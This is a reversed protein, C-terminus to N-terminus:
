AAHYRTGAYVHGNLIFKRGNANSLQSELWDLQEQAENLQYSTDDDNDMYEFNFSLVSLNKTVDVRYYGGAMFTEGIKDAFKANGTLKGFWDDKLWSYFDAKQSEPVAQSHYGDNNGVVLLTPTDPFYKLLLDTSAALNGKVATWDDPLKVDEIHPAVGHAVSDGPVLVIDVEGFKEKFRRLMYDVLTTSPDCGFRGIPAQSDEKVASSAFCNDDISAWSDYALNTHMDSIVGVKLSACTAALSASAAVIVEFQKKM